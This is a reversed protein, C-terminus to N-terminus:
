YFLYIILLIFLYNIIYFYIKIYNNKFFLLRFINFYIYYNIKKILFKNLYTLTINKLNEICNKM